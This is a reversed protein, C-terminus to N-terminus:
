AQTDRHYIRRYEETEMRQEDFLILPAEAKLGPKGDKRGELLVLM